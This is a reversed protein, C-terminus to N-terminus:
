MEKLNQKLLRFPLMRQITKESIGLIEAIEKQNLGSQALMIVIILDLRKGIKFLKKEIEKPNESM